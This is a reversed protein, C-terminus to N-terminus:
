PTSGKVRYLRITHGSPLTFSEVPAFTEPRDLVYRRVRDLDPAFFKAFGQDQEALLVYDNDVIRAEAFTWLRNVTVAKELLAADFEFALADFRPIDPVMGLRIPRNTGATVRDLVYEIKWDERAPKGWLDMYSQTYLNWNWSEPGKIGEALVVAQPVVTTGFSVVYHQVVLVAMLVYAFAEKRVVVLATILAIAPLLPASYRPDKNRLLMLGAWGSFLWLLVPIWAPDFRRYLIAAGALFVGFLPLFLQYGELARVYFVFAQWSLVGPDGETVGGATNIRHLELLSAGAPVYWYAAMIAALAASSAANRWNRRALWLAPCALFLPFTWKTLMGLGCIVGFLISRSRNSFSDTRLLAWFALTVLATLWYDIITERSLWVMIPYFSVCVAATAAALPPLLRRGIGYTAFLLIAVAPLNSARSVAVTKGFITWAAAVVSQFLPPYFGTLFPVRLFASLGNTQFADYIRLASSSHYAMDWFPPRTDRSIWILSTIVLYLFSLVLIVRHKQIVSRGATMQIREAASYLFM